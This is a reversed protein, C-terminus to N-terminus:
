MIIIIIIITPCNIQADRFLLILRAAAFSTVSPIYVRLGEERGGGGGDLLRLASPRGTM